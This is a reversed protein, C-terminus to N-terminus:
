GKIKISNLIDTAQKEQTLRQGEPFSYDAMFLKGRVTTIFLYNFVLETAPYKDSLNFRMLIFKQHNIVKIDSSIFEKAVGRYVKEFYNKIQPLDRDLASSSGYNIAFKIKSAKDEYICSPRQNVLPSELIVEEQTLRRLNRPLAATLNGPLLETIIDNNFDHKNTNFFHNSIFM